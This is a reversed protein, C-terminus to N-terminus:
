LSWGGIEMVVSLLSFNKEPIILFFFDDGLSHWFSLVEINQYLSLCSNKCQPGFENAIVELLILAM